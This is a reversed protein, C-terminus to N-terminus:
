PMTMTWTTKMVVQQLYDETEMPGIEPEPLMAMPHFILAIDKMNLNPPILVM